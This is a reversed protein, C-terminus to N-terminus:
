RTAPLHLFSVGEASGAPKHASLQSLWGPIERAAPVSPLSPLSLASLDCASDRRSARLCACCWLVGRWGARAPAPSLASTSDRGSGACTGAACRCGFVAPVALDPPVAIAQARGALRPSAAASGPAGALSPCCRLRALPLWRGLRGRRSVMGAGTPQWHPQSMLGAEGSLLQQFAAGFCGAPERSTQPLRGRM